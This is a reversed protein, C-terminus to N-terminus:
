SGGGGDGRGYYSPAIFRQIRTPIIAPQPLTSLL